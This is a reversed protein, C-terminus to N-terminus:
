QYVASLIHKRIDQLDSLITKRGIERFIMVCTLMFRTGNRGPWIVSIKQTGM